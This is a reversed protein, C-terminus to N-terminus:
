NSDKRTERDFFFYDHSAWIMNYRIKSRLDFKILKNLKILNIFKNSPITIWPKMQCTNKMKRWSLVTQVEM